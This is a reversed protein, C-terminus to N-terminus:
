KKTIVLSQHFNEWCQYRSHCDFQRLLKTSYTHCIIKVEQSMNAPSGLWFFQDLCLIKCRLPLSVFKIKKPTGPAVICQIPHNTFSRNKLTETSKFRTIVAKHLNSVNVQRHKHGGKSCKNPIKNLYFPDKVKIFSGSLVSM